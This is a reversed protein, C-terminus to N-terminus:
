FKIDLGFQVQRGLDVRSPRGQATFATQVSIVNVRNTLNLIQATPRITLRPTRIDRSLGFDISYSNSMRYINRGAPKGDKDVYAEATGVQANDISYPRGTIYKFVGSAEVNGPFLYSATVRSAHPSDWDMLAYRYPAQLPTLTSPTDGETRSLTYSALMQFRKTLYKRLSLELGKYNTEGGIEYEIRDPYRTAIQQNRIQSWAFTATARTDSRLEREYSVTGAYTKPNELDGLRANRFESLLTEPGILSGPPAAVRYLRQVELIGVSYATGPVVQHMIGWSASLKNRGDGTMAYSLGIRPQVIVDGVVHQYDARVGYQLTMPGHIWQDQAFADFWRDDLPFPSAYVNATRTLSGGIPRRDNYIPVEEVSFRDGWSYSYDAGVKFTHNSTARTLKVTGKIRRETWGTFTSNQGSTWSGTRSVTTVQPNGTRHMIPSTQGLYFYMVQSELVAVPSFQHTQSASSMLIDFNQGGQSEASVTSSLNNNKQRGSNGDIQFVWLDNPGQNYNLKVHMNHHDGTRINRSLINGADEGRFQYSVFYFMKDRKLPGGLVAEEFHTDGMASDVVQGPIGSVVKSNFRDDRYLFSYAGRVRNTGSKTIINFIGGPQEGYEPAMGGSVFDIQEISNPSLTNAARGLYPGLVDAGDQRYGHGTTAQGRVHFQTFTPSNDAATQLVAPFLSALEAHNRGALPAKEALSSDMTERTEPSKTDVMLRAAGVTVTEKLGGIRMSFKFAQTSGAGVAIGDIVQTTFGELEAKLQYNTGLPVNLFRFTGRQEVVGTRTAGTSRDTLTLIAGPLVAGTEDAIQVEITGTTVAQTGATRPALVLLLFLFFFVADVRAPALGGQPRRKTRM